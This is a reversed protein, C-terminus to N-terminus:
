NIQQLHFNISSPYFLSVFVNFAHGFIGTSFALNTIFGIMSSIITTALYFFSLSAAFLYGFVLVYIM